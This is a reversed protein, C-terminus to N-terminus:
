SARLHRTSTLAGVTYPSSRNNEFWCKEAESEPPPPTTGAIQWTEFPATELHLEV